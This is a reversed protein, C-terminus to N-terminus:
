RRADATEWTTLLHASVRPDFTQPPSPGWPDPNRGVCTKMSSSKVPAISITNRIPLLFLSSDRSRNFSLLLSDGFLGYDVVALTADHEFKM